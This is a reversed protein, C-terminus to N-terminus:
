EAAAEPILLLWAMESRTKFSCYCMLQLRVEPNVPGAQSRLENSEVKPIFPLWHLFALQGVREKGTGAGELHSIPLNM